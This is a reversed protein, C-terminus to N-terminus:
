KFDLLSILLLVLYDKLEFRLIKLAQQIRYAVTKSSIDLEEAIEQYTKNQFRNMEFAVRYTEPLSQIANEIKTTLEEIIYFDPSDFINQWQSQLVTNVRSKILDRNILTLCKNKVSRFLYQGLSTEINHMNRYEWLWLMTEQVVEEADERSVFQKAYACLTSYYKLFLSDFAINDGKRLQLYLEADNMNEFYTKVLADLSKDALGFM